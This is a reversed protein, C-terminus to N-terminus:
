GEVTVGHLEDPDVILDIAVVRRRAVTLGIV